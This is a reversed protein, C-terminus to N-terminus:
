FLLKLPIGKIYYARLSSKTRDSLEAVASAMDSYSKRLLQQILDTAAHEDFIQRSQAPQAAMQMAHCPTTILFALLPLLLAVIKFM